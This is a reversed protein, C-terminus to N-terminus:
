KTSHEADKRLWIIDTQIQSLQVLVQNYMLNVAELKVDQAAQHAELTTIRIGTTGWWAALSCLTLFFPWYDKLTKFSM